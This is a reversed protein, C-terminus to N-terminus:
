ITGELDRRMLAGEAFVRALIFTLLVAVWGGVSFGADLHVPHEPTSILKGILAMIMSLLQLALLLWAITQLRHANATIFPDGVRVTEVMAILRKLIAYNIPITVFGLLAVGRLGWILREAAPSPTLDFASMIWERNPMLVLLALIAAGILWNLVVLIKLFVFALPLAASRTESLSEVGKDINSVM